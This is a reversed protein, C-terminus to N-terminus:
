AFYLNSEANRRAALGNNAVGGAFKWREFEQAITPDDPNAKIKKLLTSKRFNGAGLNFVFSVLADFQNQNIKLGQWNVEDEAEKVDELLYKEAQAETISDGAKVGKTHGYGITWVGASCQYANLRLGEFRKIANLGNISLKMATKNKLKKVYFFVFVAIAAAVSIVAVSAIVATQKKDLIM